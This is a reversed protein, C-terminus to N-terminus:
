HTVSLGLSTCDGLVKMSAPSGLANAGALDGLGSDDTANGDSLEGQQTSESAALTNEDAALTSYKPNV